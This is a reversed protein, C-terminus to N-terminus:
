YWQTTHHRARGAAFPEVRGASSIQVQGKTLQEIQLTVTIYRYHLPRSIQVQGKTLQEIQVSHVLANLQHSDLEKLEPVSHIMETMEAM